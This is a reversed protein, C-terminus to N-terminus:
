EVVVRVQSNGENSQVNIMYAGKALKTMDLQTNNTGAVMNATQTMVTRGALDLVQLTAKGANVTTMEVHLMGTTPNPYVNLKAAQAVAGERCSVVANYVKTGSGCANSATVTITGNGTGWNLLLSPSNGGGLVYSAVPSSPYTWSLTYSGTVNSLDADFEIGEDNACWTSPIATIAIPTNPAGKVPVCRSASTGCGNTATVCVQGTFASGGYTVNVTSTGQGINITGPTTWNYTVGGQLPTSYSATQACL